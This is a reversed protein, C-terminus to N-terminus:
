QSVVPKAAAVAGVHGTDRLHQSSGLRGQHDGIRRVPDAILRLPPRATIEAPAPAPQRPALHEVVIAGVPLLGIREKGPIDSVDPEPRQVALDGGGAQSSTPEM